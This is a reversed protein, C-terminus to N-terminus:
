RYIRRGRLYKTRSVAADDVPNANHTANPSDVFCLSDEGVTNEGCDVSLSPAVNSQVRLVCSDIVSCAGQADVSRFEILNDGVVLPSAIAVWNAWPINATSTDTATFWGSGNVRYQVTSIEGDTDSATGNFSYTTTGNPLYVPYAMIEGCDPPNVPLEQLVGDADRYIPANMGDTESSDFDERLCFKFRKWVTQKYSTACTHSELELEYWGPPIDM